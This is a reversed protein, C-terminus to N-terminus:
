EDGVAKRLPRWKVPSVGKFYTGCEVFWGRFPPMLGDGDGFAYHGVVVTGDGLLLEVDDCPAPYPEKNALSLDMWDSM